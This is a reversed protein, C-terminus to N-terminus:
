ILYQLYVATTFSDFRSKGVLYGHGLVYQRNENM